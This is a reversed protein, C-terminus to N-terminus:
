RGLSTAVWYLFGVVLLIGLAIAGVTLVPSVWSPWASGRNRANEERQRDQEDIKKYLNRYRVTNKDAGEKATQSM